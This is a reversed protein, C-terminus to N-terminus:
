ASKLTVTFTTGEGDKSHVAVSGGLREVLKKVSALGIGSGEIHPAQVTHARQFPRFVSDVKDLPIGMGNDSISISIHRPLAAAEWTCAITLPRDEQRYKLANGVLNSFIQYVRTRDGIVKPLDPAIRVQAKTSVIQPAYDQLIEKLVSDLPVSEAIFESNTIKSYELIGSVLKELRLAAHRIHGLM